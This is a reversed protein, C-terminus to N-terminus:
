EIISYTTYKKWVTRFQIQFIGLDNQVIKAKGQKLWKRAKSSITPMAPTGDPNLTPVRTQKDKGRGLPPKFLRIAKRDKGTRDELWEAKNKKVWKEARSINTNKLKKNDPGFVEVNNKPNPPYVGSNYSKDKNGSTGEGKLYFASSTDIVVVKEPSSSGTSEPVADCNFDDDFLTSQERSKGVMLSTHSPTILRRDRKMM